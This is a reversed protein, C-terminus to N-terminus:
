IGDSAILCVIRFRKALLERPTLVQSYTENEDLFNNLTPKSLSKTAQEHECLLREVEARVSPDACREHLFVLRRAADEELAAEFLEKIAQWKNPSTAMFGERRPRS